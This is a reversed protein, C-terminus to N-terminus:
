VNQSQPAPYLFKDVTGTRGQDYIEESPTLFFFIVLWSDPLLEDSNLLVGRHPTRQLM